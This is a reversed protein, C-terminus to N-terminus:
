FYVALILSGATSIGILSGSGGKRTTTTAGASQEEDKQSFSNFGIQYEASLSVGNTISYEVGAIGGIMFTSGGQFSTGNVIEGNLSNKTTGQVAAGVVANKSETSTTSFLIGGGIYPSIRSKALHVEIAGGVGFSNGSKSGNSSAQGPAPNAPITQSALALQLIGRIAMFDSLYYKAGFGGQYTGAGLNALGSFSFLVGKDGASPTQVMDQGYSLSVVFVLIAFIAAIKKM